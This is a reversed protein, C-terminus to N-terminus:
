ILGYRSHGRKFLELDSGGTEGEGMKEGGKAPPEGLFRFVLSPCHINISEM